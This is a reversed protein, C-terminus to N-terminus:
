FQTAIAVRKQYKRTVGNENFIEFWVMYYGVRVKSGDERDGDWRYFGNTGLVDNNALQKILHGQPDFIKVNAVYGGQNFQYHIQTFDPQGGTPNFIEPEVKLPDPFLLLDHTSNSNLYGPTAFGVPASASKWNQVSTTPHSFMIRELSVGEEDKVFVSHMDKSYVLYDIVYGNSDVLVVSGGDDNFMPLKDLRLFNKEQSLSYEGKLIDVNETLVLYEGPKFLLNSQSILSINKIVENEINAISWNKLNIFKTSNNVIEIFDVGTPRPNFLIENVLIDLSDAHEPLGFEAKTFADLILNGTCDYIDKVTISYLTAPQMEIALSLQLETLSPGSFFVNTVATSPSLEFHTTPPVRRELKEDFKLLISTSTLPIVSRLQPGTLDPKNALVSNQEGPSGGSGNESAIWNENESCLNQPDILELTWGGKNKDEDRYWDDSYNVSDVTVNNADKLTLKDSSNNLSPFSSLAMVNPFDSFLSPEATLILYEGPLLVGDLFAATSTQDTLKWDKLNFANTSRNYIEIFEGEPLGVSPSPDAFIETIILDKYIAQFPPM